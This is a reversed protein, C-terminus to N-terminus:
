FSKALSQPRPLITPKNHFPKRYVTTSLSGDKERVVLTDIFPLKSNEETEFTFKTKPDIENLITIFDLHSTNSTNKQMILFSYVKLARPAKIKRRKAIKRAKIITHDM